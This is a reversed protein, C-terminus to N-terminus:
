WNRPNVFFNDGVRFDGKQTLVQLDLKARVLEYVENAQIVTTEDNTVEKGNGIYTFNLGILYMLFVTLVLQVKDVTYSDQPDQEAGFDTTDYLDIFNATAGGSFTLNQKIKIKM